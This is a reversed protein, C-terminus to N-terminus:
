KVKSMYVCCGAMHNQVICMELLLSENGTNQQDINEGWMWVASKVSLM